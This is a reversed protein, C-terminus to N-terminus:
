GKPVRVPDMPDSFARAKGGGGRQAALAEHRAAQARVSAPIRPGDQEAAVAPPQKAAVTALAKPQAVNLEAAMGAGRPPSQAEPGGECQM